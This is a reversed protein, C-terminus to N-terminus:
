TPSHDTRENRRAVLMAVVHRDRSRNVPDLGYTRHLRQLRFLVTNRHVGLRMAAEKLSMNSQELAALTQLQVRQANDTLLSEFPGTLAAADEAELHDFAYAHVHDFLYYIRQKPDIATRRALWLAHGFAHRYRDLRLQFSGVLYRRPVSTRAREFTHDMEALYAEVKATVREFLRETDADLAKLVVTQRDLTTLSIDQATHNPNRKLLAPLEEANNLGATDFLIPARWVDTRYGLQEALRQLDLQSTTPNYLLANTFLKKRDQRRQLDDKLREYEVMTELSTKIAFAVNKVEHYDGTVGVVGIVTKEFEVPLNVGPLVGPPLHDVEQAIVMDKHKLVIQHALEHYTGLRHADRSAIIVGETNMININYHLTECLRDIFRQAIDAQLM